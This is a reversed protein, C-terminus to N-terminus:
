DKLNSILQAYQNERSELVTVKNQLEVIEADKKNLKGRLDNNEIDAQRLKETLEM